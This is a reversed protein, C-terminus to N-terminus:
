LFQCMAINNNLVSFSNVNPTNSSTFSLFIKL